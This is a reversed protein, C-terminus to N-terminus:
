YNKSTCTSRSQFSSTRLSLVAQGQSLNRNFFTVAGGRYGHVFAATVDVGRLPREGIACACEGGRDPEPERLQQSSKSRNGSGSAGSHYAASRSGALPTRSARQRDPKPQR